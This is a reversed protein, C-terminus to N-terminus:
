SPYASLCTERHSKDPLPSAFQQVSEEPIGAKDDILDPIALEVSLPCEQEGLQNIPYPNLFICASDKGAVLIMWMSRRYEVLIVSKFIAM